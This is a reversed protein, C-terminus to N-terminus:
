SYFCGFLTENGKLHISFLELRFSDYLDDCFLYNRQTDVGNLKLLLSCGLSKKLYQLVLHVKGYKFM